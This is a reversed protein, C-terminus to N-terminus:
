LPDRGFVRKLVAMFLRGPAAQRTGNDYVGTYVKRILADRRPGPDVFRIGMELPDITRSLECALPGVGPVDLQLKQDHVLQTLRVRAGSVSLDRITCPLCSDDTTLRSAENIEFREEKRRRPLDICVLATILMLIMNYISWFINLGQQDFDDIVAYAPSLNIAIGAINLLLLGIFYRMVSWQVVAHNREGGKATVKFRQGFPRLLGQTIAGLITFLMILRTVDTIALTFTRNSVWLSAMIMAVFAPAFYHILDRADATIAYVGLYLYLLPALLTALTWPFTVMWSMALWLFSVRELLSLGPSWLPCNKLRLIQMTGLCWRSRQTLYEKLGEPALGISLPENLYRTIYGRQMLAYSLLMDETVSDTPFGGILDLHSRRTVSSTGCCFAVDWADRSPQVIDFFYRQEDVWHRQAALNSQIPDANFFHQPTQVVGIRPDDFFGVTRWLFNRRPVFDADLVMILEGRTQAASVALGHNLNGAKAHLNDPRTVYRAGKAACFDRLWARKGDDLVWVAYRPYDMALAGVITREVVDFGENYTAIFVDVFPPEARARLRTEHGDAEASRQVIRSQIFFGIVLGLLSASELLYFTWQWLVQASLALDPLTEFTRWFLYRLILLAAGGLVLLRAWNRERPLFPLWAILLAALLLSPLLHAYANM